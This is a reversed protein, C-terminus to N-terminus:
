GGKLRQWTMFAVVGVALLVMVIFAIKKGVGMMEDKGWLDSSAKQTLIRNFTTSDVEFISPFLIKQEYPLAEWDELSIMNGKKDKFEGNYLATKLKNSSMVIGQSTYRYVIPRPNGYYYDIYWKKGEQYFAEPVILYSKGEIDFHWMAVKVNYVKAMGSQYRIRVKINKSLFEIYPIAEKTATDKITESKATIDKLLTRGM